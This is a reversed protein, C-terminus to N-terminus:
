SLLTKRAEHFLSAFLRIMTQKFFVKSLVFIRPEDYDSTDSAFQIM